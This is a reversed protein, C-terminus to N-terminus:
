PWPVDGDWTDRPELQRVALEGLGRATLQYEASGGLCHEIFGVHLLYEVMNRKEVAPILSYCTSLARWHAGFHIDKLVLEVLEEWRSM